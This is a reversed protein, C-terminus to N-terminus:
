SRQYVHSVRGGTKLALSLSQELEFIYIMLAQDASREAWRLSYSMDYFRGQHLEELAKCFDRVACDAFGRSRKLNNM